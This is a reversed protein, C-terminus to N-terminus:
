SCVKQYEEINNNKQMYSKQYFELEKNNIFSIIDPIPENRNKFYAVYVEQLKTKFKQRNYEIDTVSRNGNGMGTSGRGIGQGGSVDNNNGVVGMGNQDQGGLYVSSM